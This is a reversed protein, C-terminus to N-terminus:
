CCRRRRRGGRALLYRHVTEIAGVDLGARRRPPSSCARSARSSAGLVVKQLNGGSLQRAPVAPGARPRRLPPDAAARPERIRGLRLLPGSRCRPERYTKLVVNSPSRSARRSAPASGTRPCTRSAPPSRRARTAAASRAPRRGRDHGRDPARMGTIAEALERQGNGAVGAVAVIEGARVDLDVGRLPRCAGTATSTSATSSSRRGRRGARRRARRAGGGDRGRARGDARRALAADGRRRRRDRDNTGARLVTVRDAVAKVEHLKHSIFIM